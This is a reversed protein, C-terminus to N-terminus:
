LMVGDKFLMISRFGSDECKTRVRGSAVDILLKWLALETEEAPRGDLLTGANFDIWNEKKGALQDNSAIKITPVATGLPNGRGTTFLIMQVGTSLLDTISVNDNGPGTMLNLGSVRCRDGFALTDTVAAHGGKQICGLSKEELTTLGGEKNGPSPNDYIPQGYRIYYEKFGNILSVIGDFVARDAARDMLNTEAGFMEPVETLVVTGGFESLRDTIRGCLPNATIGSFGDSGGCKLGLRLKSVPVPRRHDKSAKQALEKLIEMGADFEDGEVNQTILCRIRDQDYDGLFPEFASWNNNECGLSLILVGGANPHRIINALLKQTVGLDEGMQSCGANHPFAFVGDCLSGFRRNAESALQEATHNVCSVTPIVWIENRTGVSGDPRVYGDFTEETDMKKQHYGGHYQYELLGSLNTALNQSHVWDGACIPATAHGIASGYKIVNEGQAVARVAIKHGFPVASRLRVETGGLRVTEGAALDRLAVAVTDGEHVQIVAPKIERNEM